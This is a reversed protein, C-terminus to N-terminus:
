ELAQSDLTKKQSRLISAGMYELLIHESMYAYFYYIFRRFLFRICTAPNHPPKFLETLEYVLCTGM